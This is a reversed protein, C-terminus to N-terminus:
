KKAKEAAKKKAVPMSMALEKIAIAMENTDVEELWDGVEFHDFEFAQKEVRAGDKLASWIMDRIESGNGDGQAIRQIDMNMQKISIDRLECYLASQNLGFKLTRDEGGIIM